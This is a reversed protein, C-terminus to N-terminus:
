TFEITNGLEVSKTTNKPLEIVYKSKKKPIYASFPKFNRKIEVVKRDKDLFLVDIPYFVFVMHLSNIQEKPFYFVLGKNKIGSTFMLGKAKSLISKCHKTEDVLVINKTKNKIM